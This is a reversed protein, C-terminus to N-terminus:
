QTSAPGASAVLSRVAGASLSKLHALDNRWANMQRVSRRVADDFGPRQIMGTLANVDLELPDMQKQENHLHLALRTRHERIIGVRRGDIVPLLVSAQASWVRRRIEYPPNDLSALVAHRTGTASARGFEWRVPTDVTWGKDRAVSRLMCCPDLIVDQEEDLLREALELDWAAVRAVTTALLSRMTLVLNCEGLREYALFLVDMEDVVGCWDHTTLTVESEPPDAPPVGELVAVFLTREFERVSRSAQAYDVLFQKWALWDGRDLGDLGELWILRGQFDQQECLDLLSGGWTSALQPAYRDRISKFPLKASEPRFVSCHWSGQLRALAQERFGAQGRGPFRVVVSVGDRLSREVRRLFGAPGPLTWADM